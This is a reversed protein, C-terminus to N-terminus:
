KLYAPDLASASIPYGQTEPEKELYGKHTTHSQSDSGRFFSSQDRLREPLHHCKALASRKFSRKGGGSLSIDVAQYSKVEIQITCYDVANLHM